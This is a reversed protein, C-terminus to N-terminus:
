QNFILVKQTYTNKDTNVRVVYYGTRDSVYLKNLIQEPLTGTYVNKGMLNYISVQKITEKTNNLIYAYMGSAYIKMSGGSPNINDEPTSTPGFFHIAFRDTADDPSATFMYQFGDEPIYTWGPIIDLQKDELWIETGWDFNEVGTFTFTYEAEEGCQFHVPVTTMTTNLDALPLCNIALETGDEAISRIM